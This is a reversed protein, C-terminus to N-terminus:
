YTHKRILGLESFRKLEESKLTTEFWGRSVINNFEEFSFTGLHTIESFFTDGEDILSHELSSTDVEIYSNGTNKWKYFDVKITKKSSDELLFNEQDIKDDFVAALKDLEQSNLGEGFKFSYYPSNLRSFELRAVLLREIMTGTKINMYMEFMWSDTELFCFNQLGCFDKIQVRKDIDWYCEPCIIELTPKRRLLEEHKEPIKKGCEKCVETNMDKM